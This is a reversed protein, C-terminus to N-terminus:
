GLFLNWRGEATVATSAPSSSPPQATRQRIFSNKKNTFSWPSQGSTGRIEKASTWLRPRINPDFVIVTGDAKATELASFLHDRAAPALIALTIGSLHILGASRVATELAAPDDALHSAASQSRWYHFHREVGELEIQYLGLTRTADRLLGSPNLGDTLMQGAFRESLSDSGIKTVFGVDARQGLIEAMHWVTNFTDGAFSRQFLGDGVPSFEVMAEGIAVMKHNAIKLM